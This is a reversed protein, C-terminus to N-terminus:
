VEIEDGIRPHFGTVYAHGDKGRSAISARCIGQTQTQRHGDCTSHEVLVASHISSSKPM